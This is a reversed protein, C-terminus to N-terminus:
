IELAMRLALTDKRLKLAGELSKIVHLAKAELVLEKTESGNEVVRSEKSIYFYIYKNIM